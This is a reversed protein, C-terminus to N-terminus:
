FEFSDPTPLWPAATWSTELVTQCSPAAAPAAFVAAAAMVTEAATAVSSAPETM